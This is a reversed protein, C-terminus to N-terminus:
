IFYREHVYCGLDWIGKGLIVLLGVKAAGEVTSLVSSEAIRAEVRSAFPLTSNNIDRNDRIMLRFNPDKAKERLYGPVAVKARVEAMLSEQFAPDMRRQAKKPDKHSDPQPNTNESETSM